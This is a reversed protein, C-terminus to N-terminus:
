DAFFEETELLMSAIIEYSSCIVGCKNASSYKGVVVGANDFLLQCAEPTIFLNAGEVILKSSPNGNDDLYEKWNNENITNPRGGAPIFVDAQVRNHMSNRARIGEQSDATMFTTTRKTNLFNNLPLEEKVLRLLEQMDIGEKDEIVATADCIGVVLANDGYERHMIKIINGAVDGDTGGTVKITFPKSCPDFGESRLAVDAFVAVGESTVGYVKHNIGADPKSSIFARPIPYGRYKARNTMWTIDEPIINEDPGLYILEDKGYYDVIQAKVTKDTTNLDLLADSFAKVSKRILYNRGHAFIADDM